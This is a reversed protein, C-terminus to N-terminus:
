MRNVGILNPYLAITWGGSAQTGRRIEFGCENKLLIKLEYYFFKKKM